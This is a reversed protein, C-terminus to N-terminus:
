VLTAMMREHNTLWQVAAADLASALHKLSGLAARTNQVGDGALFVERCYRRIARKDPRMEEEPALRRAGAGNNEAACSVLAVKFSAQDLTILQGFACNEAYARTEPKPMVQEIRTMDVAQARMQEVLYGQLMAAAYYKIRHVQLVYHQLRRVVFACAEPHKAFNLASALSQKHCGFEKLPVEKFESPEAQDEPLQAQMYRAKCAHGRGDKRYVRRCGVACRAYESEIGVEEDEELRQEIQAQTFCERPIKRGAALAKNATETAKEIRLLEDIREVCRLENSIVCEQRRKVLQVIRKQHRNSKASQAAPTAQTDAAVNTEKQLSAADREEVQSSKM